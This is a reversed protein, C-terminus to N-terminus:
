FEHRQGTSPRADTKTCCSHDGTNAHRKASMIGIPFSLLLVVLSVIHGTVIYTFGGFADVCLPYFLDSIVESVFTCQLLPRVDDDFLTYVATFTSTANDISGVLEAAQTKADPMSCSAACSRFTVQPFFEADIFCQKVNDEDLAQVPAAVARNGAWTDVAAWEAPTYPPTYANADGAAATICETAHETITAAPGDAATFPTTYTVPATCAELTSAQVDWGSDTYPATGIGALCNKVKNPINAETTDAVQTLDVDTIMLEDPVDALYNNYESAGGAPVTASDAADAHTLACSHTRLRHPTPAYM